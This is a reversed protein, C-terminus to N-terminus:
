RARDRRISPGSYLTTVFRPPAPYGPECPASGYLSAAHRDDVDVRVPLRDVEPGSLMREFRPAVAERVADFPEREPDRAVQEARQRGLAPGVAAGQQGREHAHGLLAAPRDDQVRLVVRGRGLTDGPHVP